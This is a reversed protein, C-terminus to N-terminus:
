THIDYNVEEEIEQSVNGDYFSSLGAELVGALSSMRLFSGPLLAHGEPLFTDRFRQPLQEGKVKMIAEATFNCFHTVDQNIM